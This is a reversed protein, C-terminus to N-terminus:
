APLVPEVSIDGRHGEAEEGAAPQGERERGGLDAESDAPVAPELPGADAQDREAHQQREDVAVQEAHHEGDGGVGDRGLEALLPRRRLASGTWALSAAEAQQADVLGVVTWRGPSGIGLRSVGQGALWPPVVVSARTARAGIAVEWTPWPAETRRWWGRADWAWWTQRARAGRWIGYALAAALWTGGLGPQTAVGLLLAGFTGILMALGLRRRAEMHALPHGGHLARDAEVGLAERLAAAESWSLWPLVVALDGRVEQRADAARVAQVVVRVAGARALWPGQTWRLSAVRARELQWRRAVPWGARVAIGSSTATVVQGGHKILAEVAGVVPGLLLALVLMRDFWLADAGQLGQPRMGVLQSASGVTLAVAGWRPQMAGWVAWLWTPTRWVQPAAEASPPAGRLARQLAAADQGDLWRLRLPAEADGLTRVEVEALRLASLLPGIRVEVAVIRALPLVRREVTLWGSEVTLALDGLAWRTTLPGWASRVAALVGLVLSIALLPRTPADPRHGVWALLLLWAWRRMLGVLERGAALPAARLPLRQRLREVM